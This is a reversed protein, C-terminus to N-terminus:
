APRGAEGDGGKADAGPFGLLARVHREDDDGPSLVGVAVMREFGALVEARASETFPLFRFRPYADATEAEGYNLDVLQRIIQEEVVAAALEKRIAEVVLLFVDFSVRARALSGPTEEPTMGILGPMLIARAIDRDFRDLAPLFVRSAQGALEPAWFELAPGGGEPGAGPRPLVGNTLAQLNRFVDKLADVQAATFREPDYLAFVPPIGLRELLMALWKYANDKTWWARYAAELDSTGYPNGFEGDHAFLVFKERPLELTGGPREQLIAEVNGFADTRIAIGHPRRSKLAALVLRRGFPTPRPGEYVKETLSYGFDLATLVGRLAGEFTGALSELAWRVFRTVEWDAPRGEPSIVDWGSAIVAEKKLKLAAKVQEDRRMADFVDLGRRQVLRSPNYPAFGQGSFLRLPDAFAVEGALAAPARPAPARSRAFRRILRTLM